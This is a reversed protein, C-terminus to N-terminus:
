NGSSVKLPALKISPAIHGKHNVTEKSLLEIKNLIEFVTTGIVTNKVPHQIEGDKVYFGQNVQASINPNSGMPPISSSMLFLGEKMEKLMEEQSAKGPLVQLAYPSPSPKSSFSSRSAHGTNDLGVLPASYSDTIYTQLVGDKILTLKQPIVGEDDFPSSDTGGEYFPDDIITLKDSAITDGIRDIFFATRNYISFADIGNTIIANITGMTSEPDLIIPLEKTEITKAGLMQIAREGATEGIKMHDFEKLECAHDWYYANGIDEDQTIKAQLYGSISTSKTNRDIGLSNLIYRESWGASFNGSVNTDKKIKAQDASELIIDTFQEIDLELINKDFTRPISKSERKDTPLSQFNEDTPIASALNYADKVTKKISDDSFITTSAMGIANNKVIRIGLGSSSKDTFNRIYGREIQVSKSAGYIIYSEAQDAGLELAIKLSKKALSHLEIIENM